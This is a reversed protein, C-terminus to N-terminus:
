QTWFTLCLCCLTQALPVSIVLLPMRLTVAKTSPSSCRIGKFVEWDLARDGRHTLHDLHSVDDLEFVTSAADHVDCGSVLQLEDLLVSDIEDLDM